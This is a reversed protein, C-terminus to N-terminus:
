CMTQSRKFRLFLILQLCCCLINVTLKGLVFHTSIIAESIEIKVVKAKLMLVLTFNATEIDIDFIFIYIYDKEQDVCKIDVM